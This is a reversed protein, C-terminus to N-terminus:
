NEAVKTLDLDNGSKGDSVRVRFVVTIFGFKDLRNIILVSMFNDGACRVLLRSISFHKMAELRTFMTTAETDSANPKLTDYVYKLDNKNSLEPINCNMMQFM